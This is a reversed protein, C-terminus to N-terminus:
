YIAPLKMIAALRVANKMYDSFVFFTSCYATLGGHALIGNVVAGMAHERIGFQVNSGARDNKKYYARGEMKTLNSPTLDASGGFLNEVNQAVVNIVKNGSNRTAVAESCDMNELAAKVNTHDNKMWADYKKALEPFKEAYESFMTKWAKHLRKGRNIAKNLLPQIEAPYEFPPCTWGFSDKMKQLNEPGLPAGHVKATGALPSGFGIVTNCKIMTPKETQAKAKKIAREIQKRDNGDIEIVNWGLAKQRAVIDDDFVGDISGEITVKNCDYFLILKNLGLAGALSCAEYGIGEMLCGEGCLAYTYHDVVPFGEKNFEAALKTEAIAMGVANAVGQGLPGTSVEVGPTHGYEPHGPTLSGLQRFGALDEKSLKYGFLHLLSYLLMSGHGSSLVFRDRNDFKPDKPDFTLFEDFLTFAVKAAGLPLGPHGSKAKDIAEASLVRVANVAMEFNDM